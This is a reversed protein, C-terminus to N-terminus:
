QSRWLSLHLLSTVPPSPTTTARALLEESDFLTRDYIRVEDFIGGFSFTYPDTTSELNGIFLPLDATDGPTGTLTQDEVITGDLLAIRNQRVM